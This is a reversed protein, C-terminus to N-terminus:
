KLAKLKINYAFQLSKYQNVVLSDPTFTYDGIAYKEAPSPIRIKFEVPFAGGLHIYALQTYTVKVEGTEKDKYERTEVESHGDLIQIKIM